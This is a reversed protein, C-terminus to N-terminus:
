PIILGDNIETAFYFEGNQCEEPLSETGSAEDRTEGRFTLDGRGERAALDQHDESAYIAPPDSRADFSYEAPWIIVAGDSDGVRICGDDDIAIEGVFVPGGTVNGVTWQPFYLDNGSADTYETVRVTAAGSFLYVAAILALLIVIAGIHKIGIRKLYGRGGSSLWDDRLAKQASDNTQPYNPQM